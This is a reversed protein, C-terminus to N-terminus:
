GSDGGRRRRLVTPLLVLLALGVLPALIAPEFLVGLDPTGGRDIVAGLGSGVLAYVVTGPLVGLATAALYTRLPVETFAPAINVLWFPFVPVLRLFLLYHFANDRFGADMRRLAAEVRRRPRAGFASRAALFPATAGLTAGTAACLAGVVPGFLFGGAVTLLMGIPLSLSIAVAYGFTFAPPALWPHGEVWDQLAARNRALEDFNLGEHGGALFFLALGVALLALPLLRGVTRHRVPAPHAAQDGPVPM